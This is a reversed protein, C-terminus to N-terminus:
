YVETFVKLNWIVYELISVRYLKKQLVESVIGQPGNWLVRKVKQLFFVGHMSVDLSIGMLIQELLM